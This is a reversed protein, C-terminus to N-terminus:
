SLNSIEITESAQTSQAGRLAVQFATQADSLNRESSRLRMNVEAESAAIESVGAKLQSSQISNKSQLQALEHMTTALQGEFERQKAEAVTLEHKRDEVRMKADLCETKSSAGTTFAKEYAALQKQACELSYRRQEVSAKQLSIQRTLTATQSELSDQEIQFQKRRQELAQEKFRRQETIHKQQSVLVAAETINSKALKTMKMDLLARDLRQQAAYVDGIARSVATVSSHDPSLAHTDKLYNTLAQLAHQHRALQQDADSLEHKYKELEARYAKTDLEMLTQGQKVSDGSKISISLVKSDFPARIPQVEESPILQGPAQAIEELETFWSWILMGVVLLLTMITIKHGLENNFEVREVAKDTSPIESSGLKDPAVALLNSKYEERNM